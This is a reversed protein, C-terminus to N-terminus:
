LTTCAFEPVKEKALMTSLRERSAGQFEAVKFYGRSFIELTKQVVRQDDATDWAQKIYAGGAKGWSLGYGREQMHRLEYYYSIASIM